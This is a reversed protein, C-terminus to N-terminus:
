KTGKRKREDGTQNKGDQKKQARGTKRVAKRAKKENEKMCKGTNIIEKQGKERRDKMNTM